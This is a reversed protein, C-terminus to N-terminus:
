YYKICSAQYRLVYKIATLPTTKKTSISIVPSLFSVAEEDVVKSELLTSVLSNIDSILSTMTEKRYSEDFNVSALLFDTM